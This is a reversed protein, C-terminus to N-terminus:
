PQQNPPSHNQRVREHQSADARTRITDPNLKRSDTRQLDPDTQTSTMASVFSWRPLWFENEEFQSRTRAM